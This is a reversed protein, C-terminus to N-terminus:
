GADAEERLTGGFLYPLGGILGNVVVISFWMLGLSFASERNVGFLALMYLYTGERLGIGNLSVPLFAALASVPYVLFWVMMPVEIRLAAAMAMHSLVLCLHIVLSTSWAKIAPAPREWYIFLRDRPMDRLKRVLLLAPTSLRPLLILVVYVAPVFLLMCWALPPPLYSWTAATGIAAYVLMAALGLTRDALLTYLAAPVRKWDRAIYFTKIGDGGV